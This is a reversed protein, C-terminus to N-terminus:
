QPQPPPMRPPEAPLLLTLGGKIALAAPLAFWTVTGVPVPGQWALRAVVLLAAIAFDLIALLVFWGTRRPAQGRGLAAILAGNVFVIAATVVIALMGIAMANAAYGRNAATEPTPVTAAVLGAILFACGGAMAAAVTGLTCLVILLGRM